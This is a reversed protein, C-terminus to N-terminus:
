QRLTGASSCIGSLYYTVPWLEPVAGENVETFSALAQEDRCEARGKEAKGRASPSQAANFYYHLPDLLKNKQEIDDFTM